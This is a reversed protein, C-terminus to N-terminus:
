CFTNENKVNVFDMSNHQKIFNCLKDFTHQWFFKWTAINITSILNDFNEYHSLNFCSFLQFNTLLLLIQSSFGRPYYLSPFKKRGKSYILECLKHGLTSKLVAYAIFILAEFKKSNYYTKVLKRGKQLTEFM